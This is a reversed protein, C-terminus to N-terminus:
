AIPRAPSDVIVAASGIARRPTSSASSTLLFVNRRGREAGTGHHREGSRVCSVVGCRRSEDATQPRGQLIAAQVYSRFMEEANGGTRAALGRGSEQSMETEPVPGPLIANARVGRRAGEAATTRTLALLGAKSTAYAAGWANAQRARSAPFM